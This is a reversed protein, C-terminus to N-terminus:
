LVRAADPKVEVSEPSDGDFRGYQLEDSERSRSHDDKGTLETKM